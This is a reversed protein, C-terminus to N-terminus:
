KRVEPNVGCRLKVVPPRPDRDIVIWCLLSDSEIRKLFNPLVKINRRFLFERINEGFRGWMTQKKWSPEPRCCFCWSRYRRASDGWTFFRRLHFIVDWKPFSLFSEKWSEPSGWWRPSTWWGRWRRHRCDQHQRWLQEWADEEVPLPLDHNSLHDEDENDKDEDENEWGWWWGWDQLLQEWTGKEVPLPSISLTLSITRMIM